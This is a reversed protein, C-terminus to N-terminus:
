RMRMGDARQCISRSRRRSISWKVGAQARLSQTLKSAPSDMCAKNPMAALGENNSVFTYLKTLQKYPGVVISVNRTSLGICPFQLERQGQWEWSEGVIPGLVPHELRGPMM